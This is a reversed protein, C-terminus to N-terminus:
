TSCLMAACSLRSIKVACMDFVQWLMVSSRGEATHLQLHCHIPTQCQQRHEHPVQQKGSSSPMQMGANARQKESTTKAQQRLTEVDVTLLQVREDHRRQEWMPRVAAVREAPNLLAAADQKEDKQTYVAAGNEPGCSALAIFQCVSICTCAM